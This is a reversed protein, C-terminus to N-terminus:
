STLALPTGISIYTDFLRKKYKKTYKLCSTQQHETLMLAEEKAKSNEIKGM